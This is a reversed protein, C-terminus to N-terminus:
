DQRGGTRNQSRAEEDEDEEDRGPGTQGTVTSVVRNTFDVAAQGANGAQELMAETAQRTMTAAGAGAALATDVVARTLEASAEAATGIGSSREPRRRTGRGSGARM